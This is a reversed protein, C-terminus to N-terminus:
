KLNGVPSPGSAYTQMPESQVPNVYTQRYLLHLSDCLDLASPAQIVLGFQISPTESSLSAM